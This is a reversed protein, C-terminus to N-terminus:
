GCLCFIYCTLPVDYNYLLVIVKKFREVEGEREVKFIQVIDVTYFSHTEAHTNLM